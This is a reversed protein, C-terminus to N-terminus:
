REPRDVSSIVPQPPKPVIMMEPARSVMLWTPLVALCLVPLVTADGVVVVAIFLAIWGDRAVPLVVGLIGCAIALGPPVGPILAYGLLGVAAGIFVAPFIRGGRFGASAAVM